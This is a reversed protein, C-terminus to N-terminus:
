DITRPFIHETRVIHDGPQLFTLLTASIAAMGSGFVVSGFGGEISNVAKEVAECTPNSFRIYAYGGQVDGTLMCPKYVVVFRYSQQKTMLSPLFTFTLTNIYRENKYYV